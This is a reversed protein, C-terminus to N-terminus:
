GAKKRAPKEAPEDDLKEVETIATKLLVEARKNTIRTRVIENPKGCSAVARLFKWRQLLGLGNEKAAEAEAAVEAFTADGLFTNGIAYSDLIARMVGGAGAAVAEYGRTCVNQTIARVAHHRADHICNRVASMIFQEVLKPTLGASDLAKRVKEVAADINPTKATIHRVIENVQKQLDTDDMAM